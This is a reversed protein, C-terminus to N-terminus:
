FEFKLITFVVFVSFKSRGNHCYSLDPLCSSLHFNYPRRLLSFITLALNGWSVPPVVLPVLPLGMSSNVPLEYFSGIMSYDNSYASTSWTWQALGLADVLVVVLSRMPSEVQPELHYCCLWSELDLTQHIKVTICPKSKSNQVM